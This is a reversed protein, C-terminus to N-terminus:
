ISNINDHKGRSPMWGSRDNLQHFFHISIKGLDILDVTVIQNRQRSLVEIRHGM